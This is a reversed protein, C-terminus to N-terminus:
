FVDHKKGRIWTAIFTIAFLLVAETAAIWFYRLNGTTCHLFKLPSLEGISGLQGMLVYTLYNFGLLVLFPVLVTAIPNRLVYSVTLSLVAFLGGFLTTLLLMAGLYCLPHSFFLEAFLLSYRHIYQLNYFLDPQVAPVFCAVAALNLLMPIATNLVGSLFVALYKSLVYHRGTARLLLQRQYGSQGERAYSWAYGFAAFLPLLVYFLYPLVSYAEEAIWLNYLSNVPLWPNEEYGFSGILSMNYYYHYVAVGASGLAILSAALTSLRFFPSVLAKKLEIRYLNRM